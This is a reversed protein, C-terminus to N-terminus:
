LEKILSTQFPEYGHPKLARKWGERSEVIVFGCGGEKAWTEARERLPGAIEERDGAAVVVQIVSAGTPYNRIETVLCANEGYWSQALGSLLMQDLHDITFLRTDVAKAFEGRWKQWYPSTPLIAANM